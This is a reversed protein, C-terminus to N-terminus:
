FHFIRLIPREDNHRQSVVLATAWPLVAEDPQWRQFFLLNPVARIIDENIPLNGEVVIAMVAAYRSYRKLENKLTQEEELSLKALVWVGRQSAAVCVDDSPNEVLM